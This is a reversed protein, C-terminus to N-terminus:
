IRRSINTGFSRFTRLFSSLNLRTPAANVTVLNEVPTRAHFMYSIDYYIHSGTYLGTPLVRSPQFGEIIPGAVQCQTVPQEPEQQVNVPLYM